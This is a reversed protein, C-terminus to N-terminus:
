LPVHKKSMFSRLLEHPLPPPSSLRNSLYDEQVTIGTEEDVGYM